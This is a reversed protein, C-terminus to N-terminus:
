SLDELEDDPEWDECTCLDETSGCGDCVKEEHAPGGCGECEDNRVMILLPM